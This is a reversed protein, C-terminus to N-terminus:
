PFAHHIYSSLYKKSTILMSLTFFSTFFHSTCFDNFISLHFGKLIIHGRLICPHHYTPASPISLFPLCCFLHVSANLSYKLALPTDSSAQPIIESQTCHISKHTLNTDDTSMLEVQRLNLIYTFSDFFETCKIWRM